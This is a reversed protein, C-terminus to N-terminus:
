PSACDSCYDSELFQFDPVLTLLNVLGFYLAMVLLWSDTTYLLIVM